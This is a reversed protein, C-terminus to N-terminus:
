MSKILWNAAAVLQIGENHTTITRWPDQTIRPMERSLICLNQSFRQM